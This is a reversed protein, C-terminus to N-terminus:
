RRANQITNIARSAEHEVGVGTEVGVLKGVSVTIGGVGAGSGDAVAVAM